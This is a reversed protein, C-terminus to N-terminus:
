NLLQSSQKFRKKLTLTIKSRRIEVLYKQSKSLLKRNKIGVKEEDIKSQSNFTKEHKLKIM